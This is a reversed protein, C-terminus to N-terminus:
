LVRKNMPLQVASPASANSVSSMSRGLVGLRFMLEASVSASIVCPRFLVLLPQKRSQVQETAVQYRKFGDHKRLVNQAWPYEVVQCTGRWEPVHLARVGTESRIRSGQAIAAAGYYSLLELRARMHTSCVQAGPCLRKWSTGRRHFFTAPWCELSSEVEVPMRSPLQETFARCSRVREFSKSCM